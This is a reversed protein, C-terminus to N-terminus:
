QHAGHCRTLGHQDSSAEDLADAAGDRGRHDDRDDDRLEGSGGFAGLGHTGLHEDGDATSRDAEQNTAYEGLGDVPVPDEHDVDWDADEGEKQTGHEDFLVGSEANAM